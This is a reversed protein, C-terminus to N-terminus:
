DRRDPYNPEDAFKDASNQLRRYLFLDFKGRGEFAIQGIFDSETSQPAPHGRHKPNQRRQEDDDRNESKQAIIQM